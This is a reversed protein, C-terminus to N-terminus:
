ELKKVWIQNYTKSFLESKDIMPAHVKERIEFGMQKLLRTAESSQNIFDDNIELLISRCKNSSFTKLGGKLILHEIGDVDIKVLSPIHKLLGMEFMDDISFGMVNVDLEHNIKKGDFGYDVDFASLAGGEITNGYKFNSIGTSSFLPNQIVNVQEQCSNLNINKLLLKLNLFSPEFAFSEGNNFKSHYISYLGVNAGIDFLIAGKNGFEEIWSLTEPEKISFTKARFFNVSNPTYFSLEVNKGTNSKHTINLKQNDIFDLQTDFYLGKIRQSFVGLFLYFINLLIYPSILLKKIFIKM